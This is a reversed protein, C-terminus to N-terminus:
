VFCLMKIVKDLLLLGLQLHAEYPKTTYSMAEYLLLEARQHFGMVKLLKSMSLFVDYREEMPMEGFHWHRLLQGYEHLAAQIMMNASKQDASNKMQKWLPLENARVSDFPETVGELVRWSVLHPEDDGKIRGSSITGLSNYIFDVFLVIIVLLQKNSSLNVM